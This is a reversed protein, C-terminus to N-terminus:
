RRLDGPKYQLQFTQLNDGEMRYVVIDSLLTRKVARERSVHNEEYQSIWSELHEPLNFTLRYGIEIDAFPSDARPADSPSVTWEATPYGTRQLKIQHEPNAMSYALFTAADDTALPLIFPASPFGLLLENQQRDAYSAAFTALIPNAAEAFRRQRPEPYTPQNHQLTPMTALLHRLQGRVWSVPFTQIHHDVQIRYLEAATREVPALLSSFTPGSLDVLSIQHALAFDQADKAFGKASFLAYVYRFRKRLRHGHGHVFNENIDHVVGHANRVAALGTKQRTFKAELFLRIPFSFAPTFAFEGLVDAQHDAGRGRVCLGSGSLTLEDKDQSKDVLLRYGSNRLLWALAEELLYGRLHSERIM